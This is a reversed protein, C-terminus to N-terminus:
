RLQRCTDIVRSLLGHGLALGSPIRTGHMGTTNDVSDFDSLLCQKREVSTVKEYYTGGGSPSGGKQFLGPAIVRKHDVVTKIVAWPTAVNVLLAPGSFRKDIADGLPLWWDLVFSYPVADWAAYGLRDINLARLVSMFANEAALSPNTRVSGYYKVSQTTKTFSDGTYYFPRYNTPSGVFREIDYSQESMAFAHQGKDKLIDRRERVSALLDTAALVDGIFPMWGYTGELWTDEAVQVVRKLSTSSQNAAVRAWKRRESKSLRQLARKSPGKRIASVLKFPNRLMGWTEQLERLFSIAHFNSRGAEACMTTYQASVRSLADVASSEKVTSDSSAMGSAVVVRPTMVSGRSWTRLAGSNSVLEVRSYRLPHDQTRDGDNVDTMRERFSSYNALLPSGVEPGYNFQRVRDRSM